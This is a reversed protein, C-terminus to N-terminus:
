TRDTEVAAATDFYAEWRRLRGSDLAFIQVWRTEWTRGSV